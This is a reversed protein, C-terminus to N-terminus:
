LKLTNKVIRYNMNNLVNIPYYLILKEYTGKLSKIYTYTDYKINKTPINFV